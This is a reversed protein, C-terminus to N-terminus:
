LFCAENRIESYTPSDTGDSWHYHYYWTWQHNTKPGYFACGTYVKVGTECVGNICKKDAGSCTSTNCVPCSGGSEVTVNRTQNYTPSSPNMDKEVIILNGTNSGGSQECSSSVAQWAPLTGYGCDVAQGYYNYCIKKIINRDQDRVLSLRNHNDYEYYTIRNDADCQSSIGIGQLYTYSTMVANKPYLRLEDIYGTGSISLANVGSIEHEYCTWGSVSRGQKVSLNGTVSYSGNKSWYSVIYHISSNLGTKSIGAGSFYLCKTGAPSTNDATISGSYTWKGTTAQDFSTYAVSSSDANQVMAVPMVNVHAGTLGDINYDWIYTVPGGKYNNLQSIEGDSNYYLSTLLQYNSELVTNRNHAATDSLGANEYSYGEVPQGYANYKIINGSKIKGNVSVEAKVPVSLINKSLLTNINYGSVNNYDPPYWIKSDVVQGKSNRTRSISQLHRDNYFYKVGTQSSAQNVGEYAYTTTSSSDPLYWETAIQYSIIQPGYLGYLDTLPQYATYYNEEKSLLRYGATESKEYVEKKKLLNNQWHWSLLPAGTKAKAFNPPDSLGSTFTYDTRFSSKTSDYYETVFDYRVTKGDTTLPLISNSVYYQRFLAGSSNIDHVKYSPGGDIIGSSETGSSYKYTFSRSLTNGLGDRSVIKKVRLGGVKFSLSDTREGWQFAVDFGPPYDNSSGNVFVEVLYNGTNLQLDLVNTTNMTTILTSDPLSRLKVTLKCSANTYTTCPSELQPIIKVKTAPLYVSFTGSFYLPYPPQAPLPNSLLNLSYYKDKMDPPEMGGYINLYDTSAENQEYSYETIGGTPYKIKTLIRAATYNTDIRRDAGASNLYEGYAPLIHNDENYDPFVPNWPLNPIKPMLYVGNSKGNYYGWYDQATSFRSPLEVDNYTFEYAPLSDTGKKETISKLYLRRRAEEAYAGIDLIGSTSYTPSVFYGYRLYYSKLEENSKNTILITDLSRSGEQYDVMDSRHASSPKFYVNIYEGSIKSIVSKNIYQKFFSQRRMSNSGDAISPGFREGGRGFTINHEIRYTFEITKGAPDIISTLMWSTGYPTNGLAVPAYSNGDLFSTTTGSWLVEQCSDCGGFYCKVGNPLTLTFSGPSGSVVINQYPVLIFKGSDQNYYFDGSYGLVSFSYQDPELDLINYTNLDQEIAWGTPDQPNVCRCHASDVYRVTRYYPTVMYGYTGQEDPKDRVTRTIQGGASLSWGLGVWTPVEEVRIGSANYSLSVPVEISGSKVSCFPIGIQPTGSSYSIPINVNKAFAAAEPSHPLIDQKYLVDQANLTLVYFISTTFLFLPKIM